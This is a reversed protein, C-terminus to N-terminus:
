PAVTSSRGADAGAAETSLAPGVPLLEIWGSPVVGVDASTYGLRALTEADPAVPFATGTADVLYLTGASSTGRGNDRVLAGAGPAVNVPTGDGSATGVALSTTAQGDTRTTLACVQQDAGLAQPVATPWGSAGAPAVATPLAELTAAPVDTATGQLSGTGLLYLQYALPSLAALSGDAQVVYRDADPSGAAHVAQGVLLSTGALPHGADNVVVPALTTGPDFLDLWREDVQHRTAEGLGLARLVPDVRGPDVQYRRSGAVVFVGARTTVVAAADTATAHPTPAITVQTSGDPGLCATWGTGVLSTRAPLQDPAGIIGVSQGVPVKAIRSSSTTVVAFEGSPILLRASTTNVVPHLTGNASVFRAGTDTAVVLRNNSWGDPLGPSIMGSFVGGVVVLATLALGAVVARMPRAPELEKGGAAGSTFATLLRRRSFSQAEILDKKSAM